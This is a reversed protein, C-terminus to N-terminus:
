EFAYYKKILKIINNKDENSIKIFKNNYFYPQKIRFISINALNEIRASSKKDLGTLDYHFYYNDKYKQSTLPIVTVMKRNKSYKWIICPRYKNLEEKINIGLKCWYIYEQKIEFNQILNIKNYNINYKDLTWNSFHLKQLLEENTKTYLLDESLKSFNTYIKHSIINRQENFSIKLHKGKNFIPKEFNIINVQILEDLVIIRNISTVTYTNKYNNNTNEKIVLFGKYLIDSTQEIILIHQNNFQYITGIQIKPKKM